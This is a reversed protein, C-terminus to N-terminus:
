HRHRPLGHVPHGPHEFLPEIVAVERRQRALWEGFARDRAAALLEDAIASRVEDYPVSHAAVISEVVAVHWGHETRVPGVVDGVAAAFVGDELVGTLEGRRLEFREGLPLAGEGAALRRAAIRADEEGGTLVHRICRVEARRFLDGNREYYARVEDEPVTVDAPLLDRLRHVVAPSPEAGVPDRWLGVRRAEAAVIEEVVLEQVLWRRLRLSADSGDPPVHRGRPGRRLREMRQDVRTVPIPRGGVAAVREV